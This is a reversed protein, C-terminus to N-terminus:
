QHAQLTTYARARELTWQQIENVYVEIMPANYQRWRRWPLSFDGKTSSPAPRDTLQDTPRDLRSSWFLSTLGFLDDDNRRLDRWNGKNPKGKIERNRKSAKVFERDYRIFCTHPHTRPSSLLVYYWIEKPFKKTYMVNGPETLYVTQNNIPLEAML